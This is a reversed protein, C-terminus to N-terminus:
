CLGVLYRDQQSAKMDNKAQEDFYRKVYKFRTAFLKEHESERLPINVLEHLYANYAKHETDEVFQERWVSWFKEPTGTTAYLAENSSLALLLMSYVYLSRIGDEKQNRLQQSVAQSLSNKIDPRKCEIVVLPIGNIFLVLDPRYTDNMGARTVAFEESVHFVNNHLNKWDIFNLTYSKKDGDISQEMAKGLTLLNYIYENGSIYGEQMPVNRMAEIGNEINQESFPEIKGSILSISNIKRLQERLIPELLVNTTKEGRLLLAEEQSLYTYGLKQLLMLAPLQSIHDEKFSLNM